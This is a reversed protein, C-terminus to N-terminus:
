SAGESGSWALLDGDEFDDTFAVRRLFRRAAVNTDSGTPNTSFTIVFTRDSLGVGPFTQVGATTDNVLFQSGVPVGRKTFERARVGGDSDAIDEGAWAVVFAGDRAVDIVPLRRAGATLSNVQIEDSAPECDADFLRLFLNGAETSGNRWVVVFGGRGDGAVTVLVQSGTEVVNVPIEDEVPAVGADFCRAVVGAQNSDSSQWAAVSDGAGRHFLGFTDSGIDAGPNADIDSTVGAGFADFERVFLDTGSPELRWGVLFSDDDGRHVRMSQPEHALTANMRFATIAQSGNNLSHAGVVDRQSAGTLDDRIWALIWDGSGNMSVRANEQHAEEVPGAAAAASPDGDADYLRRFARDFDGATDVWAVLFRGDDAMGVTPLFQTGSTATNVALDGSLPLQAHLGGGIAALAWAAGTARWGGGARRM